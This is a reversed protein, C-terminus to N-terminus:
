GRIYIIILVPCFMLIVKLCQFCLLGIMRSFLSLWSTPKSDGFRQMSCKGCSQLLSALGTSLLFRLPPTELNPNSAASAAPVPPAPYLLHLLQIPLTGRFNAHPNVKHGQSLAVISTFRVNDMLGLLCHSRPPWSCCLPALCQVLRLSTLIQALQLLSVESLSRPM